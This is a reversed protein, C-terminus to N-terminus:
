EKRTDFLKEANDNMFQYFGQAFLDCLAEESKPIRDEDNNTVNYHDLIAHCVEHLFTIKAYEESQIGMNLKIVSYPTNMSGYCIDKDVVLKNTREVTYNVGLINVSEPINM